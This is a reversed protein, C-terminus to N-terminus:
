PFKSLGLEKYKNKLEIFKPNTIELQKVYVKSNLKKPYSLKNMTYVVLTDNVAKYFFIEGSKYIFSKDEDNGIKKKSSTSIATIEYNLGRKENKLYITEELQPYKVEVIERQTSSLIIIFTIAYIIAGIILAAVVWIIIKKTM